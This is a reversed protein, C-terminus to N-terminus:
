HPYRYSGYRTEAEDLFADGHRARRRQDRDRGRRTTETTTGDAAQITVNYINDTNADAANEFDPPDVFRLFGDTITFKAADDGALSWTVDDNASYAAIRLGRKGEAHSATAPGALGPSVNSVTVELDATTSATGDSVQVTVEYVNDTNADVANEYDPAQVFSLDGAESLTFKSADAGGATGSPISWTLPDADSDTATVTAVATMGEEVEFEAASTIAPASNTQAYVPADLGVAASLVTLLLWVSPGFGCFVPTSHVPGSPRLPTPHSIMAGQTSM